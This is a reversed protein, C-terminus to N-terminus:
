NRTANLDGALDIDTDMGRQKLLALGSATIAVVLPPNGGATLWGRFAALMIAAGDRQPEPALDLDDVSIYFLARRDGTARHVAQLVALVLPHVDDSPAKSRERACHRTVTSPSKHM